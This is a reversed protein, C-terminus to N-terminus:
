PKRSRGLGFVAAGLMERLQAYHPVEHAGWTFVALGMPQGDFDLPEIVLAAEEELAADVGLDAIALTNSPRSAGRASRRWVVELERGSVGGPRLRTICFSAVGLGPIHQDLLTGLAEADSTGLMSLCGGWLLRLHLALNQFRTHEVESGIRAVTVRAEQLLDELRPRLGPEVGVSAILQLRLATLVDHVGATTQGRSVQQRVLQELERLFLLEKGDGLDAILADILRTDWNSRGALRGNAARALEATIAPRREILALKGSRALRPPPLTLSGFSTSDNALPQVCGCSTRFVAASELRESRPAQGTELAELLVRAATYGQQEVQQNVTSLPPNAARAELSNDFGAVAIGRPVSIGRRSLGELVGLAIEDNMGVIAHLTDATFRRVEFLESVAAMGDERGLAPAKLLLREDLGVGHRTLASRYGQERAQAEASTEPGGIFAIRHRSHVEILHSVLQHMGGENDVYVSAVDKLDLGLAVVPIRAFHTLQERLREIGAHNSLSGASVVMGDIRASSLWDYVFNCAVPRQSTGLAGGPVILVRAKMQRAARLVGAALEAPYESMLNDVLLAIRHQRAAVM